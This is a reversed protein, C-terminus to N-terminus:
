NLSRQPWILMQTMVLSPFPALLRSLPSSCVWERHHCRGGLWGLQALVIYGWRCVLPLLSVGEDGALLVVVSQYLSFSLGFLLQSMSVHSFIAYIHSIGHPRLLWGLCFPNSKNSFLSCQHVSNRECSLFLALFPHLIAFLLFGDEPKQVSVQM